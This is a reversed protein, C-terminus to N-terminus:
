WGEIKINTEYRSNLPWYLVLGEPLPLTMIFLHSDSSSWFIEVDHFEVIIMGLTLLWLSGWWSGWCLLPRTIIPIRPILRPGPRGGRELIPDIGLNIVVIAIIQNQDCYYHDPHHTAATSTTKEGTHPPPWTKNGVPHPPTDHWTHGTMMMIITM